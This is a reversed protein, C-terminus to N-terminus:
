VVGTHRHTAYRVADTSHDDQGPAVLHSVRGDPLTARRYSGMLDYAKSPTVTGPQVNYPVSRPFMLRKSYILSHMTTIGEEIRNVGAVCNQLGILGLDAGIARVALISSPRSPDCYTASVNYKQALRIIEADQTPQPVPTGWHGQWGELFYWFGGSVGLVVFCPNVDGWDIGMVAYDLHDPVRDCKNAESLSYLIKGPYDEFTALFEQRFLKEPMTQRALEIEEALGAITNNVSTPSNFSAYSSDGGQGRQFLEYLHNLKGKPTGTLLATSGATDAMAPRIVTDFVGPKFDQIEDGAFHLIRSGRLGDGNRDNAGVVRIPPKGYKPYITHRTRDIRDILPSLDGECLTVLPTWLIGIAQTLTPMAALVTEPSQPDVRGPFSLSRELLKIQQLRSKGWRRGSTVIKIRAPNCFVEHQGPHLALNIDM